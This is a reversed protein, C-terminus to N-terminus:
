VTPETEETGNEMEETEDGDVLARRYQRGVLAVVAVVITFFVLWTIPQAVIAGPGATVGAILAAVVVVVMGKAVSSRTIADSLWMLCVMGATLTAITTFHFMGGYSAVLRLGGPISSQRELFWTLGSAQWAGILVAVIGTAVAMNRPLTKDDVGNFARWGLVALQVFMSAYVYPMVGLAFISMRSLNGGTLFQGPAVSAPAAYDRLADVAPANVGPIPIYNGVRYLVAIFAAYVITQRHSSLWLVGAERWLRGEGGHRLEDVLDDVVDDRVGFWELGRRAANM